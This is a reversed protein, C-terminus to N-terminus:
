KRRYHKNYKKQYYLLLLLYQRYLMMKCILWNKRYINRPVSQLAKRLSKDDVIEKVRNRKSVIGDESSCVGEIIATVAYKQYQFNHWCLDNDSVKYEKLADNIYKWTTKYRSWLKEYNTHTASIDNYCYTYLRDDVFIVNSSHNLYDINFLVDEAIAVKKNFRIVYKDIIEKRYIRNWIGGNVRVLNEGNPTYGWMAMTMIIKHQIEDKGCIQTYPFVYEIKTNSTEKYYGSIASDGNVAEVAEYMKESWIPEPIDDADCFMLYKGQAIQIGDNRAASVGENKKHICKIRKDNKCAEDCIGPSSDTSGDDVLIIEIDKLTQNKLYEITMNLYKEANYIPVIVSVKIENM